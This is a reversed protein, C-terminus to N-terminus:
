NNYFPVLTLEDPAKCDCLSLWEELVAIAVDEHPYTGYLEQTYHGDSQAPVKVLRGESTLIKWEYYKNIM